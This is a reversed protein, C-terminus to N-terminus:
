RRYQKEAGAGDALDDLVAGLNNAARAVSPHEPGLAREYGALAREWAARAEGFKGRRYDLAGRHLDLLPRIEADGGLREVAASAREVFADGDGYAKGEVVVAYVIYTWAQAAVRDHRSAEAMWASELLKARAATAEGAQTTAMGAVLLAE